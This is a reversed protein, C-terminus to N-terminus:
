CCLACWCLCSLEGFYGPMPGGMLGMGMEQGPRSGRGMMGGLRSSPPRPGAPPPLVPKSDPGAAEALSPSAPPWEPISLQRVTMCFSM